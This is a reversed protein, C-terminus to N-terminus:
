AGADQDVGRVAVGEDRHPQEAVVSSASHAGFHRSAEVDDGGFDLEDGIRAQRGIPLLHVLAPHHTPGDIHTAVDAEGVAVGLVLLALDGVLWAYPAHANVGAPDGLTLRTM